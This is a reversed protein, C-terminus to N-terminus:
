FGANLMEAPLTNGGELGEYTLKYAISGDAQFTAEFTGSAQTSVVPV